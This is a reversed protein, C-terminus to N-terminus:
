PLFYSLGQISIEIWIQCFPTSEVPDLDVVSNEVCGKAVKIAQEMPLQWTKNTVNRVNIGVM